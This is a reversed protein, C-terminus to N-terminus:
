RRPEWDEVGPQSSHSRNYAIASLVDLLLHRMREASLVHVSFSPRGGADRRDVPGDLRAPSAVAQAGCGGGGPVWPAGLVHSSPGAL